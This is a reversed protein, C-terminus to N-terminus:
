LLEIKHDLLQLNPWHVEVYNVIQQLVSRTHNPDNSVLVCALVSQQWNDQLDVEASSVNFERHLRALVPKIASRKAKLSTLGPLM